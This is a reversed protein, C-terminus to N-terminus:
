DKLKRLHEAFRKEAIPIQEKYWRKNGQKNGGVLLIAKREPDFAFLIRWPNGRYQVRLEKLNSVKSGQISDVFPRGLQPGHEQLLGLHAFIADQMGASQQTLWEAFTDHAFVEWAM